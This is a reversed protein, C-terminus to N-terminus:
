YSVWRHETIGPTREEDGRVRTSKEAVPLYSISLSLAVMGLTLYIGVKQETCMNQLEKLEKRVM